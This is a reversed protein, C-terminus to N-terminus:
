INKELKFYIQKTDGIPQTEEGVIYFDLKQYFGLALTNRKQVDIKIVTINKPLHIILYSITASGYGKDREENLFVIIDLSCINNELHYMLWGVSVDRCNKIIFSEKDLFFTKIREKWEDVTTSNEAFYLEYEDTAFIEKLFPADEIDIKELRIKCSMLWDVVYTCIVQSPVHVWNRTATLKRGFSKLRFLAVLKDISADLDKLLYPTTLITTMLEILLDQNINQNTLLWYIDFIDKTRTSRAGFKLFGSLKEVIMQESPDIRFSINSRNAILNFQQMTPAAIENTNVGIDFSLSFATGENDIFQVNLNKGYYHDHHLEVIQGVIELKINPFITSQNVENFFKRIKAESISYRIMDLDIDKTFGRDGHTLEYLTIGGKLSFRSDAGVSKAKALFIEQCIKVQLLQENIESTKREHLMEFLTQM